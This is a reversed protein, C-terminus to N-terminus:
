PRTTQEKEFAPITAQFSEMIEIKQELIPIQANLYAIRDPPPPPMLALEEQYEQLTKKFMGLFAATMNRPLHTIAGLQWKGNPLRVDILRNVEQKQVIDRDLECRSANVRPHFDPASGRYFLWDQDRDLVRLGAYNPIKFIGIIAERVANGCSPPVKPLDYLHPVRRIDNPIGMEGGTFLDELLADPIQGSKYSGMKSLLPYPREIQAHGERGGRFPDLRPKVGFNEYMPGRAIPQNVLPHDVYLWGGTNTHGSSANAPWAPSRAEATSDRGLRTRWAANRAVVEGRVRWSLSTGYNVMLAMVMLLVPLWLVLELPALGRRARRRGRGQGFRVNPRWGRPLCGLPVSEVTAPQNPPPQRRVLPEHYHRDSM